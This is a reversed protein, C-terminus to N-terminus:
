CCSFVDINDVNKKYWIWFVAAVSLFILEVGASVVVTNKWIKEKQWLLHLNGGLCGAASNFLVTELELM